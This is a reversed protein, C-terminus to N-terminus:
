NVSKSDIFDTLSIATKPFEKLIRKDATLLNLNMEQALAVFECDYASCNSTNVLQMISISSPMFENDQMQYEAAALIELAKDFTLLKKQLYLALVNMFESHWLVPVIWDPDLQLLKNTQEAYQEELYFYCIINTDVVIM